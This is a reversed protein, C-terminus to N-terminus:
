EAPNWASGRLWLPLEVLLNGGLILGGGVILHFTIADYGCGISFAAAWLPELLYILAARSAPVRPQYSTMWHYALVTCFLTMTLLNLMLGPNQLSSILWDTWASLGCSGAAWAPALVVAPLGTMAVFGVTLHASETNKGLRDLLLIVLAFMASALLTLGEGKDLGWAASSDIELFAAGVIGVAIGVFTTPAISLRFLLFALLPVWASALSTIFGSLAPKTWALGLVQGFCGLFNLFGLFLGIGLARWSPQTFLHRRFIAFILLAIPSRLALLTLSAVVPGGPCETTHLQWYKTLPFSAGWLFTSAVLM